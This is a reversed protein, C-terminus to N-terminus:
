RPLPGTGRRRPPVGSRSRRSARATTTEAVARRAPAAAIMAARVRRASVRSNGRGFGANRGRRYEVWRDLVRRGTAFMTRDFAHHIEPYVVLRLKSRDGGGDRSIGLSSRGEAMGRCREAPTWEDREGILILTPVTMMGSSGGCNPYLAIAGRFKKDFHREMWGSEVSSLAIGAGESQGLLVVRGSDVFPQQALYDLAAYGDLTRSASNRVGCEGRKLNRPGYSDVALTVYGWSTFRPGWQSDLGPWDGGCGHLVIIAPAPVTGRPTRLYGVLKPADQEPAVNFEVQAPAADDQAMLSNGVVALVGCALAAITDRFRM